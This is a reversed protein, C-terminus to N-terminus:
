KTEAAKKEAALRKMERPFEITVGLAGAKLFQPLYESVIKGVKEFDASSEVGGQKAIKENIERQWKKLNEIEKEPIGIVMIGLFPTAPTQDSANYFLMTQNIRGSQKPPEDKVIAKTSAILSFFLIVTLIAPILKTKM